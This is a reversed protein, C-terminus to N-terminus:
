SMINKDRLLLVGPKAFLVKVNANIRQCDGFCRIRCRSPMHIKCKSFLVKLSLKELVNSAFKHMAMSPMGQRAVEIIGRRHTANGYKLVHQLVYNGFRTQM